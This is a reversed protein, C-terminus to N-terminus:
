RSLAGTARASSARQLLRMGQLSVRGGGHEAGTFFVFPGVDDRHTLAIYHTSATGTPELSARAIFRDEARNLVGIDVDGTVGALRLEIWTDGTPEVSPHWPVVVGYAWPAPPTQITMPLGTVPQNPPSLRAHAVDFSAPVEVTDRPAGLNRVFEIVPNTLPGPSWGSLPEARQRVPQVDVVRAHRQQVLPALRDRYDSAKAVFVRIAQRPEGREVAFLPYENSPGPLWLTVEHRARLVDATFDRADCVLTALVYEGAPDPEYTYVTHDDLAVVRRQRAHASLLVYSLMAEDHQRRNGFYVGQLYLKGAAYWSTLSQHNPDTSFWSRHPHVAIADFYEFLSSAGGSAFVDTNLLVPEIFFVRRGGSIFWTAASASAIYADDGVISRAAHRAVEMDTRVPRWRPEGQSYADVSHDYLISIVVVGCILAVPIARTFGGFRSLAAGAAAGVVVAIAAFYLIFEPTFYVKFFKAEGRSGLLIFLVEPLAAIVIGRTGSYAALVPAALLVVPIRASLPPLVLRGTVPQNNPGLLYRVWEALSTYANLHLRVADAIGGEGQVEHSFRIIDRGHPLVFLALTPVAILAGGCVIALVRSSAERWPRVAMAWVAYVAAGLWACIAPYHMASALTLLVAGLFLRGRNWDDLRASELAVLGAFWTIALMWDPRLVAQPALRVAGFYLGMLLASKTLVTMRSAVVLGIALCFAAFPLLAAAAMVPMRLRLLQALMWYYTPPHVIMANFDGHAPYIMRGSTLSTYTANFLGLEDFTPERDAFITQAAATALVLLALVVVVASQARTAIPAPTGAAPETSMQPTM